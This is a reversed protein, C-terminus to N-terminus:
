SLRELARTRFNDQLAEDSITTALAAIIDHAVATKIRAEEERGSAHLLRALNAYLRWRLFSNNSTQEDDVIAEQILTIAPEVDGMPALTKAKLLWLFPITGGPQRGAASLILREAIEQAQTPADQALALEAKAVWCYRRGITNMPADSALVEHLTQHAESLNGLEILVRALAGSAHHIWYKSDLDRALNLCKELEQRAEEHALVETLLVGFAFQNGVLWELHEIASAIEFGRRSIELAQGFDGELGLLLTRPWASWAEDPFSVSERPLRM